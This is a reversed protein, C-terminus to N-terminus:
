IVAMFPSERCGPQLVATALSSIGGEWKTSSRERLEAGDMAM